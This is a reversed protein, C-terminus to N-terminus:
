RIFHFHIDIHKTCSHYQSHKSLTIVSQNDSYVTTPALISLFLQTFLYRLWIAEKAAHTTAVYEAETTSLAVVEQSKSYWSIAGRGILFMYGSIVQGDESISRDVDTYGIYLLSTFQVCFM